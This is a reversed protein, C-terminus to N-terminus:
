RANYFIAESSKSVIEELSMREFVKRTILINLNDLYPGCFGTM